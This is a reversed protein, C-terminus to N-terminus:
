RFNDVLMLDADAEKLNVYLIYREDPSVTLGWMPRGDIGVISRMGGTRADRFMISTRPEEVAPPIFYVGTATATFAGTHAIRDVVREEEGSDVPIRWLEAPITGKAYYLFAGDPSVKPVAGGNRTV